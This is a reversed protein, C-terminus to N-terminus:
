IVRESTREKERVRARCEGSGRSMGVGHLKIKWGRGECVTEREKGGTGGGRVGGRIITEAGAAAPM